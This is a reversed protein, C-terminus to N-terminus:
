IWFNKTSSCARPRNSIAHGSSHSRSTPDFVKGTRCRYISGRSTLTTGHTLCSGFSRRVTPRLSRNARVIRRRSVDTSHLTRAMLEEPQPELISVYGKSNRLKKALSQRRRTLGLRPSRSKPAAEDLLDEARVRTIGPEERMAAGVAREDGDGLARVAAPAKLRLATQNHLLNQWWHEVVYEPIVISIVDGPNERRLQRVYRLVPRVTERYPSEIVVLPVPM